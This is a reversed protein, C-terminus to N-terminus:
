GPVGFSLTKVNGPRLGVGVGGALGLLSLASGIVVKGRWPFITREFRAPVAMKEQMQAALAFGASETATAVKAIDCRLVQCGM